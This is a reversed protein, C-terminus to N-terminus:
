LPLLSLSGPAAGSLCASHRRCCSLPNLLWSLCSNCFEKRDNAPRKSFEWSIALGNPYRHGSPPPLVSPTLCVSPSWVATGKRGRWAGQLLKLENLWRQPASPLGLDGSESESQPRKKYSCWNQPHAKLRIVENNPPLPSM